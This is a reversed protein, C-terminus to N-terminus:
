RGVEEIEAVIRETLRDPTTAGLMLAWVLFRRRDGKHEPAEPATHDAPRQVDQQAIQAAAVRGKDNRSTM